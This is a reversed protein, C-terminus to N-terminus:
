KLYKDCYIIDLDLSAVKTVVKSAMTSWSQFVDVTLRTFITSLSAIITWIAIDTMPVRRILDPRIFPSRNTKNERFSCLSTIPTTCFRDIIMFPSVHNSTVILICLSYLFQLSISKYVNKSIQLILPAHNNHPPLILSFEKITFIALRVLKM